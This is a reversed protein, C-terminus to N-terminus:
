TVGPELFTCVAIPFPSQLSARRSQVALGPPEFVVSALHSAHDVVGFDFFLFLLCFVGGSPPLGSDLVTSSFTPPDLTM